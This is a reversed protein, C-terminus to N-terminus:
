HKLFKSLAQLENSITTDYLTEDTRFLAGGIVDTDIRYTLAVQKGPFFTEAKKTLGERTSKSVEHATVVVVDVRKAKERELHELQKIIAPIKKGEGRRKLFGFFNQAVEVVKQATADYTLEELSRAYQSVTPRM